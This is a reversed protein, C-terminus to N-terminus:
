KGNRMNLLLKVIDGNEGDVALELARNSPSAGHGLLREALAVNRLRIASELPASCGEPGGVVAGGAILADAVLVGGSGAEACRQLPTCCDVVANPDLGAAILQPIARHAGFAAAEHLAGVILRVLRTVDAANGSNLGALLQVVHDPSRLRRLNCYPETPLAKGMSSDTVTLSRLAGGHEPRVVAPLMAAYPVTLRALSPFGDAARTFTELANRLGRTDTGLVALEKLERHRPHDRIVAAADVLAVVNMSINVSLRRVSLPADSLFGGKFPEVCRHKRLTLGEQVAAPDPFSDGRPDASFPSSSNRSFGSRMDVNRSGALAILAVVLHPQHVTGRHAAHGLAEVCLAAAVPREWLNGNM